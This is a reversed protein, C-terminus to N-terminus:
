GVGGRRSTWDSADANMIETWAREVTQAATQARVADYALKLRERAKEPTECAYESVDPNAELWANMQPAYARWGPDEVNRGNGNHDYRLPFQQDMWAQATQANQEFRTQRANQEIAVVFPALAEIEQEAAETAINIVTTTPDEEFRERLQELFDESAYDSM